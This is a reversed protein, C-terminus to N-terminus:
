RRSSNEQIIELLLAKDQRQVNKMLFPVNELFPTMFIRRPMFYSIKFLSLCTLKYKLIKRSTLQELSQLQMEM